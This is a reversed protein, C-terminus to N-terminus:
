SLWCAPVCLEASGLLKVPEYKLPIIFDNSSQTVRKLHAPLDVDAM